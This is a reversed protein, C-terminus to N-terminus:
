VIIVGEATASANVSLSCSEVDHEEHTWTQQVTCYDTGKYEGRERREISSGDVFSIVMTAEFPLSSLSGQWQTYRYSTRSHPKIVPSPFSLTVTTKTSKKECNRFDQRAGIGWHAVGKASMLAPLSASMQYTAGYDEHFGFSYCADSGQKEEKAITRGQMNRPEDNDNCYDQQALVTPSKTKSLSDLTPYEIDKVRIGKVPKWFIVFMQDIDSGAKGGFGSLFSNGSNFLYKHHDDQGVEFTRGGSTEFKLYGVRTGFGNGSMVVDGILTEGPKFEISEFGAASEPDGASYDTLSNFYRVRIAKIGNHNDEHSGGHWVTL